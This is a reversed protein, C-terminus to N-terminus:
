AQSQPSPAREVLTGGRQSGGAAGAPSALADYLTENDHAEVEDPLVPAPQV